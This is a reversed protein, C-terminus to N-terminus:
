ACQHPWSLRMLVVSVKPPTNEWESSDFGHRDAVDCAPGATYSSHIRCGWWTNLCANDVSLHPPNSRTTACDGSTTHICM